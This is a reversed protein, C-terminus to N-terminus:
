GSRRELSSEPCTTAPSRSRRARRRGLAGIPVCFAVAVAVLGITKWRKNLGLSRRRSVKIWDDAAGVAGAAVVAGLVLLAPRTFPASTGVHGLCYGAVVAILIAIGGM